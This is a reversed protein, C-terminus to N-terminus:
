SAPFKLATQKLVNHRAEAPHVNHVNHAEAPISLLCILTAAKLPFAGAVISCNHPFKPPVIPCSVVM